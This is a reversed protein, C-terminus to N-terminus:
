NDFGDRKLPPLLLGTQNGCAGVHYSVGGQVELSPRVSLCEPCMAWEVSVVNDLHFLPFSVPKPKYYLLRLVKPKQHLYQIM